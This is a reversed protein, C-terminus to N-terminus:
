FHCKICSKFVFKSVAFLSALKLFRGIFIKSLINGPLGLAAFAVATGLAALLYFPLALYVTGQLSINHLNLVYCMRLRLHCIVSHAIYSSSLTLLNGFATLISNSQGRIVTPVVETGMQLTTNGAVIVLFRGLMSIVVLVVPAESVLPTYRLTFTDAHYSGLAFSCLFMSIAAAISFGFATWRRGLYDCAFLAM